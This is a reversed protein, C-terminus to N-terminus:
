DTVHQEGRRIIEELYYNYLKEKEELIKESIEKEKEWLEILKKMDKQQQKPIRPINLTKLNSLPMSKIISGTIKSSMEEEAIKSQLFWKLVIPDMKEKRTRIICFQSPILLGDLMEDVYIIKNPYILRFLLDGEKVLKNTFDKNTKFEEYEQNEEHNKLSFLLYSNEGSEDQERKTLIGIMLQAIEELKM